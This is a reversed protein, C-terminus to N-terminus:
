SVLSVGGSGAGWGRLAVEGTVVSSHWNPRESRQGEIFCFLYSLSKGSTLPSSLPLSLGLSWAHGPDPNWGWGDQVEM